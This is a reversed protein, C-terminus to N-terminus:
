HQLNKKAEEIVEEWYNDPQPVYKDPNDKLDQELDDISIFKIEQVEEEQIELVKINGDFKYFYIYYFENNILDNYTYHIKKVKFFTLDDKNLDLNLEEETERVAADLVDEDADVHGAASVDWRDPYISKNKARLQILVEGKSNYIWVHASQHWLGLKHANTKTDQSVVAGKENCIDLLEDM